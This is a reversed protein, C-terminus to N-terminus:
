VSGSPARTRVRGKFISLSDSLAEDRNQFQGTGRLLRDRTESDLTLRAVETVEAVPDGVMDDTSFYRQVRRYAKDLVPLMLVTEWEGYKPFLLVIRDEERAVVEYDSFFEPWRASNNQKGWGLNWQRVLDATTPAANRVRPQVVAQTDPLQAESQSHRTRVQGAVEAKANPQPIKREIQELRISLRDQLERFQQATARTKVDDSVQKLEREVLTLRNRLGDVAAGIRPDTVGVQAQSFGLGTRPRETSKDEVTRQSFLTFIGLIACLTGLALLLWVWITM